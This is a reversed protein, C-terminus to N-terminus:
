YSFIAEGSTWNGCSGMIKFFDRTEQEPKRKRNMGFDVGLHMNKISRGLSQFKMNIKKMLLILYM